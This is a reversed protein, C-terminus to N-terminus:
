FGAEARKKLWFEPFKKMKMKKALAEDMAAEWVKKLEAQHKLREQNVAERKKTWRGLEKMYRISGKHMPVPFQDYLRLCGKLSWFAKLAKHKEAYYPYAETLLKTIIYAKEDPLFDYALAIPYAYSITELPKDKSLTAGITTTFTGYAPAVKKVRAWGEKDAAPAPLYHIGYPMGAMEYALSATPNVHTADLKGAMLMRVAQGYSPTEVRVVDDWTLGGFALHGESILTLAKSPFSAVRKGKLDACTKIDSDGRTALALGAHQAFYLARVPQPGWENAAYEEVGEQMFYSGLGHFAVEADRLRVPYVRPIDTGAPIIRIKIGYKEFLTTSIHGVMMYGSSGVDYSTWTMMKPIPVEGALAHSGGMFLIGVLGVLLCFRIRRNKTKM